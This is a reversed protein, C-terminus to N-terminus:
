APVVNICVPQFACLVPAADTPQNLLRLLALRAFRNRHGPM